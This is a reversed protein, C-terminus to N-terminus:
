LRARRMQRRAAERAGPWTDLDHAVHVWEADDSETLPKMRAWFEVEGRLEMVQPMRGNHRQCCRAVPEAASGACHLSTGMILCM